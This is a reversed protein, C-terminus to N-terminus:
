VKINIAMYLNKQLLEKYKYNIFIKNVIKNIIIVYLNINLKYIYKRNYLIKIYMSLHIENTANNQFHTLDVMIIVIINYLVRVNHYKSVIKNTMLLKELNM